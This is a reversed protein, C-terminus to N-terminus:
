GRMGKESPNFHPHLKPCFNEFLCGECRPQIPFCHGEREEGRGVWSMPEELDGPNEPFAMKAFSQIKIDGMSNKGQYYDFHPDVIGLRCAVRYLGEGITIPTGSFDVEL